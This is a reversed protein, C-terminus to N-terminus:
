RGFQPYYGGNQYQPSAGFGSGGSGYIDAGGTGGYSSAGGGFSPMGMLKGIAKTGLNVINQTGANEASQAAIMGQGITGASNMDGNYAATRAGLQGTLGQGQAGIRAGTAGLGMATGSMFRQLQNGYTQDAYGTGFRLLDKNLRGSNTMGRAAASMDLANVGEEQGFQYGPLSRVSSPDAYLRQLATNSTLGTDEYPQYGQALNNYGAKYEDGYGLLKRVADQQKSYQDAAADRAAGAGDQGFLSGLFGM